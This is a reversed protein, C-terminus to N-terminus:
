CTSSGYFEKVCEIWLLECSSPRWWFKTICLPSETSSSSAMMSSKKVENPFFFLSTNLFTIIALLVTLYPSFISVLAWFYRLSALCYCCSASFSSICANDVAASSCFSSITLSSADSSPWLTFIWFHSCTKCPFHNFTLYCNAGLLHSYDFSLNLGIFQRRWPRQVRLSMKMMMLAEWNLM